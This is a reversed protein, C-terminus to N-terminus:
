TASELMLGEESDITLTIATVVRNVIESARNLIDFLRSDSTTEVLLVNPVISSFKMSGSMSWISLSGDQKKVVRFRYVGFDNFVDEIVSLPSATISVSSKM